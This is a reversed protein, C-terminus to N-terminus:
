ILHNGITIEFADIRHQSGDDDSKYNTSILSIPKYMILDKTIIALAQFFIARENIMGNM